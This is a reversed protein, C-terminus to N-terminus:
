AEGKVERGSSMFQLYLNRTYATREGAGLREREMMSWIVGYCEMGCMKCWEGGNWEM